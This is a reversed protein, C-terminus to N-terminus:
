GVGETRRCTHQHKEAYRVVDIRAFLRGLPTEISPLDGDITLQRVRERTLRLARGTQGTTLFEGKLLLSLHVRASPSQPHQYPNM